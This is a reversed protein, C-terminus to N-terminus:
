VVKLVMRFRAQNKMMKAYAEPAKELAIVENMSRIQHQHAFKLTDESDIATGSASGQIKKSGRILQPTIFETPENSVGVVILKGRGKLGGLLSSMSKGSAATALIANAGGLKQLAQAVNEELADIYHHAGLERALKEKEKGRAIAVTIFGMKCAFQIGLHGLGGIGQIAVLDGARLDANRLANYTTVGACLLPAAEEAKMGDPIRALARAEVIAMQAYGGDCSIGSIILNACSIFDGRRCSECHGCQGGFWGVGVRDGVKWNKVHTGVADIAGAIEHGPVRPFHIGAPWVGEIAMSDSHCVGAAEVKLRVQFPGPEGVEREVLKLKGPGTAEVAKYTGM